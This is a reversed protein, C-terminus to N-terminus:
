FPVDTEQGSSAAWDRILRMALRKAQAKVEANAAERIADKVAVVTAEDIEEIAARVGAYVSEQYDDMLDYADTVSRVVGYVADEM